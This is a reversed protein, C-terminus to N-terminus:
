KIREAIVVLSSFHQASNGVLYEFYSGKFTNLFLGIMEKEL